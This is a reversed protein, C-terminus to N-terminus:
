QHYKSQPIECNFHCQGKVQVEEQFWRRQPEMHNNKKGLYATYYLCTYTDYEDSVKPMPFNVKKRQEKKTELKETINSQLEKKKAKARM